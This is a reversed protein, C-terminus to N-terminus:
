QGIVASAGRRDGVAAWARLSKMLRPPMRSISVEDAAGPAPSSPVVLAAEGRSRPNFTRRQCREVDIVHQRAGEVQQAIIGAAVIAANPHLLSLVAAVIVDAGHDDAPIIPGGGPGRVGVAAMGIGDHRPAVVLACQGVPEAHVHHHIRQGTIVFSVLHVHLGDELPKALLHRQMLCDAGQAKLRQDRKGTQKRERSEADDSDRNGQQAAGAAGNQAGSGEGDQKNPEGTGPQHLLGLLCQRIDPQQYYVM